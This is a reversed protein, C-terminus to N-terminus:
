KPKTRHHEALEKWLEDIKNKQRQIEDWDVSDQTNMLEKKMVAQTIDHEIADRIDIYRLEEILKDYGRANKKALELLEESTENCQKDTPKRPLWLSSHKSLLERDTLQKRKKEAM